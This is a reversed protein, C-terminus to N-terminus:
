YMTIKPGGGNSTDRTILIIQNNKIVARMIEPRKRQTELRVSEGSKRVKESINVGRKIDGNLPNLAVVAAFKAVGVGVHEEEGM